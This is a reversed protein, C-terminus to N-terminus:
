FTFVTFSIVAFLLRVVVFLKAEIVSAMASDDDMMLKAASIDVVGDGRECEYWGTVRHTHTHINLASLVCM